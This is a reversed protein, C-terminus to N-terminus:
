IANNEDLNLMYLCCNRDPFEYHVPLEERTIRRFGAREYFRHARTLISPTDLIIKTIGEAKAFAILRDYLERSLGTGRKDKRIFFKKLVGVTANKKALGLTGVLETGEVALWFMGGGAFFASEVDGM